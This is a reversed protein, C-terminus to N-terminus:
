KELFTSLDKSKSETWGVLLVEAESSFELFLVRSTQSIKGNIFYGKSQKSYICISDSEPNQFAIALRNDKESFQAM